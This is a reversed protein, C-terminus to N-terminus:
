YSLELHNKKNYEPFLIEYSTYVCFDAGTKNNPNYMLVFSHTFISLEIGLNLSFLPHLRFNFGTSIGFRNGIVLPMTVLADAFWNIIGEELSSPKYISKEIGVVFGFGTAIPNAFTRGDPIFHSTFSLGVRIKLNEGINFRTGIEAVFIYYYTFPLYHVGASFYFHRLDPYLYPNADLVINTHSNNKILITLTRDEESLIWNYPNPVASIQFFNLGQSLSFTNSSFSNSMNGATRFNGNITLTGLSDPNVPHDSSNTIGYNKLPFIIFIFLIIITKNM